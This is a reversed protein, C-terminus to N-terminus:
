LSVLVEKLWDRSKQIYIELANMDIDDNVLFIEIDANNLLKFADISLLRKSSFVSSIPSNLRAELNPSTIAIFPTNTMLAMMVGHFTTTILLKSRSIQKLTWLPDTLQRFFDLLFRSRPFYGLYKTNNVFKPLTSIDLNQHFNRILRKAYPSYVTIFDKRIQNKFHFSYNTNILHFCPDVVLVPKLDSHDVVLDHTGRDRVGVSDFGNLLTKIWLPEDQIRYGTSPAYSIKHRSDDMEGFMKKDSPFISSDLHWIMDSGYISVDSLQSIPTFTFNKSWYFRMTLYKPLMGSLIQIRLENWFHNEYDLHSVKATPLIQKLLESLGLAQIYQGHNGGKVFSRIQVTKIM